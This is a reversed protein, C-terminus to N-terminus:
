ERKRRHQAPAIKYLFLLRGARSQNEYDEGKLFKSRANLYTKRHKNGKGLVVVEGKYFDVDEKKVTCAETVRAGTSYLFEIMTKERVTKCAQRIRELEM